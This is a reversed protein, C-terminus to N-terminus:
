FRKQIWVQYNKVKIILRDKYEALFKEIGQRPALLPDKSDHIWEYDDFAMIGAVKLAKFSRIADLYVNDAQHDGDIYIFDFENEKCKLLFDKSSIKQKKVNNYKAVRENYTNEIDEWNFNKHIKEDSGRWTDVDFLTSTPNTLINELLWISADGTYVGIQIFKLDPANKYKNLCNEFNSIHPKFWNPYEM